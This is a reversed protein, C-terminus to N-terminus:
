NSASENNIFYNKLYESWVQLGKESPGSQDENLYEKIEETKPDPWASWHDLYTLQKEEAYAKLEDVQVPYIKANYLPFSPQIMVTIEPNSTKLAEIFLSLNDLSEAIAIKESNDTLLFPEIVVLDVKEAAIEEQKQDEIFQTSTSEITQFDLQITDGYTEILNTKTIEYTDTIAPTGIFLIKFVTNENLTQELRNVAPEPWNKTFTVLNNKETSDSEAEIEETMASSNKASAAIQQKWYSQGFYLVVLCTLGLIVTFINKMMIVIVGMYNQVIM